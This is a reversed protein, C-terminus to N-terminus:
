RRILRMLDDAWQNIAAAARQALSLILAANQGDMYARDLAILVLIIVAAWFWRM